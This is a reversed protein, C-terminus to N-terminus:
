RELHNITEQVGIWIFPLSVGPNWWGTMGVSHM